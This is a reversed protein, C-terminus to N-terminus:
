CALSGVLFRLTPFFVGAPGLEFCGRFRPFDLVVMFRLLAPPQVIWSLVVPLLRCKFTLTGSAPPSVLLRLWTAAMVM